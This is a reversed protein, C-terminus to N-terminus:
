VRSVEPRSTHLLLQRLRVLHAELLLCFILFLFSLQPRTALEQLRTPALLAELLPEALLTQGLSLVM